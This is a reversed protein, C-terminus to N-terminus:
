QAFVHCGNLEHCFAPELWNIAGSIAGGVAIENPRKWTIACDQRFPSLCFTRCLNQPYSQSCHVQSYALAKIKIPFNRSSLFIASRSITTFVSGTLAFPSASRWPDLNEVVAGSEPRIKRPVAGAGTRCMKQPYSQACSIQSYALAKIEFPFGRSRLFFASPSMLSFKAQEFITGHM